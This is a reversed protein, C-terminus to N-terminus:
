EGKEIKFYIIPREEKLLDPYPLELHGFWNSKLEEELKIIEGTMPNSFTVKYQKLIGMKKLKLQHMKSVSSINQLEGLADVVSDKACFCAECEEKMTFYNYTRNNIAGVVNREESTLSYVEAKSSKSVFYNAQWNGKNLQVSNMFVNVFVFYRWLDQNNNYNLWPMAVGSLGIFPSLFVSQKWITSGDCASMGSGIESLMFPKNLKLSRRSDEEKLISNSIQFRKERFVKLEELFRAYKNQKRDFSYANYTAIDIYPSYYSLDGNALDPKGTYSVAIPHNNHQLEEKIFKAMENQWALVVKPVIDSSDNYPVTLTGRNPCGNGTNKLDGQQGLNNIESLLELVGISTSYGWRAIIYRLKNKYHSKAADSTFFAIPSDLNLERGYCFGKDKKDVCFKDKYVDSEYAPWDWNTITYVSPNELAGHLLMNFHIKLNEQESFDILKDLEWANSMRNSYNGLTEFEIDYTWPTILMRYYNGGSNKFQKVLRHYQVYDNHPLTEKSNYWIDGPWPINQGVPFFASDGVEFYQNNESVELFGNTTKNTKLVKLEVLNSFLTDPGLIVLARCNWQGSSRPTFRGRLRYETGSPVINGGQNSFAGYYFGVRNIADIEGRDNPQWFKLQINLQKPNFPNIYRKSLESYQIPVKSEIYNQVREEIELPLKIGLEVRDFTSVSGKNLLSLKVQGQAFLPKRIIFFCVVILLLNIKVKM